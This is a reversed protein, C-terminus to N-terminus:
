PVGSSAPGTPARKRRRAIQVIAGVLCSAVAAAIAYHWWPHGDTTSTLSQVTETTVIYKKPQGEQQDRVRTGTPFTLTFESEPITENLSHQTVVFKQACVPVTDRDTHRFEWSTPVWGSVSNAQYGIDLQTYTVKPNTYTERVIIWDRGPDLWFESRDGGVRKLVFQECLRGGILLKTGTPKLDDILFSRMSRSTGRFCRTIPRVAQGKAEFYDSERSLLGRPEPTEGEDLSTKIKGDLIATRRIQLFEGGSWQLGDSEIRVRTDDLVYRVRYTTRTDAVPLPRVAHDPEGVSFGGKYFTNTATIHFEATRVKDQREQWAKAVQDVPTQGLAVDSFRALCVIALTVRM